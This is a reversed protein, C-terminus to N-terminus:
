GWLQNDYKRIQRITQEIELAPLLRSTRATVRRGQIDHGRKIMAICNALHSDTMQSVLMRRGDACKWRAIKM